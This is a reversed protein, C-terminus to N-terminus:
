IMEITHIEKGVTICILPVTYVWAGSTMKYNIGQWSSFNKLEEPVGEPGFKAQVFQRTRIGATISNYLVYSWFGGQAVIFFGIVRFLWFTKNKYLLIDRTVESKNFRFCNRTLILQQVNARQHSIRTLIQKASNQQNVAQCTLTRALCSSIIPRPLLLVRSINPVKHFM